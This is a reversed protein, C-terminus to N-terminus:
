TQDATALISDHEPNNNEVFRSGTERAFALFLQVLISTFGPFLLVAIDKRDTKEQIWTTLQQQELQRGDKDYPRLVDPHFDLNALYNEDTQRLRPVALLGPLVAVQTRPPKLTRFKTLNGVYLKKGLFHRAHSRLVDEVSTPNIDTIFPTTGLNRSLEILALIAGQSFHQLIEQNPTSALIKKREKIRKKRAFEERKSIDFAVNELGLLVLLRESKYLDSAEM